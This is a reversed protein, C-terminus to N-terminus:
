VELMEIQTQKKTPTHQLNLIQQKENWSGTLMEFDRIQGIGWKSTWIEDLWPSPGVGEFSNFKMIKADRQTLPGKTVFSNANHWIRMKLFPREGLIHGNKSGMKEGM